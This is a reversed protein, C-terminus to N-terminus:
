RGRRLRLRSRVLSQHAVAATVETAPIFQMPGNAVRGNVTFQATYNQGPLNYVSPFPVFFREDLANGALDTVGASNITLVYTGNRPRKGTAFNALLTQPGIPASPALTLGTLPVPQARGGSLFALSFNAGNLLQARNV